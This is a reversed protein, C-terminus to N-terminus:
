SRKVKLIECLERKSFNEIDTNLKSLSEYPHVRGFRAELGIILMRMAFYSMDNWFHKSIGDCEWRHYEEWAKAQCTYNCYVCM